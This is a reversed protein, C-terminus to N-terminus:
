IRRSNMGDKIQRIKDLGAGGAKGKHPETWVFYVARVCPISFTGSVGNM